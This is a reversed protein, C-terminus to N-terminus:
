QGSPRGRKVWNQCDEGRIIWHGRARDQTASLTGNRCARRVHEACCQAIEGVAGTDYYVGPIFRLELAAPVSGWAQDM